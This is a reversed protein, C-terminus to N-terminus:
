FSQGKSRVCADTMQVSMHMALSYRGDPGKQGYKRIVANRCWKTLEMLDTPPAASKTKGAAVADSFSAGLLLAVLLFVRM